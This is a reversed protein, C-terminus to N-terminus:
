FVEETAAVVLWQCVVSSVSGISGIGGFWAVGVAVLGICVM